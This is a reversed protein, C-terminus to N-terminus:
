TKGSRNGSYDIHTYHDAGHDQLRCDAPNQITVPGTEGDSSDLKVPPIGITGAEGKHQGPGHKGAQQNKQSPFSVTNLHVVRLSLFLEDEGLIVAYLALMEEFSVGSNTMKNGDLDLCQLVVQDMYIDTIFRM